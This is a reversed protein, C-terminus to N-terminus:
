IDHFDMEPNWNGLEPNWAIYIISKTNLQHPALLKIM